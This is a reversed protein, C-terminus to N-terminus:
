PRRSPPAVSAPERPIRAEHESFRGDAADRHCALCNGAGGVKPNRFVVPAIERHKRRFRPTETIRLTSSGDDDRGANAALFGLISAATAADVSADVGFHRDLGRIVAGWASAPLLRPEYAVHCSGCETKWGPHVLPMRPRDSASAATAAFLALAATFQGLRRRQLARAERKPTREGGPRGQRTSSVRRAERKPAREGESRPPSM